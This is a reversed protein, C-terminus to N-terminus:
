KAIADKFVAMMNEQMREQAEKMEMWFLRRREEDEEAQKQQRTQEEEKREVYRKEEAEMLANRRKEEEFWLTRREEDMKKEEELLARRVENDEYASRDRRAHKRYRERAGPSRERSPSRTVDRARKRDKGSAAPRSSRSVDRGRISLRELADAIREASRARPRNNGGTSRNGASRPRHAERMRGRVAIKLKELDDSLQEDSSARLRNLHRRLDERRAKAKQKKEIRTNYGYRNHDRFTGEFGRVWKGTRKDM